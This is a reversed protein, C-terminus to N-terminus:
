SVRRLTPIAPASDGIPPAAEVAARRRQLAEMLPRLYLRVLLGGLMLAFAVWIIPVGPDNTVQLGSYRQVSVFKVRYGGPLDGSQGLLLGGTWVQNMHTTNLEYVNATRDAQLDGQFFRFDLLPTVLNASGARAVGGVDRVDPVFFMLAGLQKGPPGAAPVKLIGNALAPQGFFLVPGDFVVKGTPDLVQIVPAWGYSAQYFKVGKHELYQNVRINAEDVKRGNEFVEVHSVFDSPKGNAYYAANFRDVKVEFGQHQQGFLVGEEVQDYSARAEVVSQGEIVNVFATFGDAKGWLIGALLVFFSLHFVLSGAEGWFQPNRPLHRRWRRYLARGRTFVCNSLSLYMLGAAALLPWSEYVAFLGLRDYLPGLVQHMSIYDIARQPQLAKQPLLTAIVSLAAVIALLLVASRMRSLARWQAHAFTGIRAAPGRGTNVRRSM